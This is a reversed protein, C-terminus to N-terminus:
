NAISRIHQAIRDYAEFAEATPFADRPIEHEHNKEFIRIDLNMSHYIVVNPVDRLSIFYDRLRSDNNLTQGLEEGEWKFDVIQWRLLGKRTRIPNGEALKGEKLGELKAQIVYVCYFRSEMGEGEGMNLLGDRHLEVVNISRNAIRVSGLFGGFAQIGEESKSEITVTFGFRQLHECLADILSWLVDKWMMKKM